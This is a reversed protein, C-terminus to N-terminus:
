QKILTGPIKGRVGTVQLRPEEPPTWTDIEFDVERLSAQSTPEPQKVPEPITICSAYLKGQEFRIRVYGSASSDVYKLHPNVEPDSAADIADAGLRAHKAMASMYGFLLWEDMCPHIADGGTEKSDDRFICQAYGPTKEFVNAMTAVRIPASVGAGVFECAVAHRSAGDFNEEIVSVLHMHRDGTLSVINSLQESAFFTTLELREGPYGDWGDLWYLGNKNGGPAFSDDFAIRSLGVNLGLLKWTTDSAKLKGLLWQKQREGLMSNQPKDVRPNAFAEGLYTLDAASSATSGADLQAVLEPPLTARSKKQQRIRLIEPLDIKPGRYSRGDIMFLEATRGWKLSRYITMSGIAALNNPEQSLYHSSFRGPTAPTVEVNEFDRAHHDPNSPDISSLGAPVYEFWAQNGALKLDPISQGDAYSQWIDNWAEHDDWTQVFPYWARADQLDPDSLYKRYLSRYDNLDTPGDYGEFAAAQGGSEFKGFRRRTGDANILDPERWNLDTWGRTGARRVNEYIFDGVHVIMDIKADPSASKDWELLHRYATFFGQEYDQCSFLALSLSGQAEFSPATRSRGIRSFSGDPARFRYYFWADSPLDTTLVRVTHDLESSTEVSHRLALTDFNSSNSVELILTVPESAGEVRTWVVFGDPQPDASSVGQPFSFCRDAQDLPQLTDQPGIHCATAVSCGASAAFFKIIQRRDLTM